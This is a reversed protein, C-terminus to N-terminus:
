DVLHLMCYRQTFLFPFFLLFFFAMKQKVLKPREKEPIFDIMGHSTLLNASFFTLKIATSRLTLFFTCGHHNCPNRLRKQSLSSGESASLQYKRRVFGKQIKDQEIQNHQRSTDAQLSNKVEGKPRLM